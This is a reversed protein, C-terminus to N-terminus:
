LYGKYFCFVTLVLLFVIFQEFSFFVLATCVIGFYVFVHALWLKFSGADFKERLNM